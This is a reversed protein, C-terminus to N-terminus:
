LDGTPSCQILFNGLSLLGLCGSQHQETSQTHATLPWWNLGWDPCMGRNHALGGTPAVHYDVVCQHKEGEREGERGRERFIFKIKKKFFSLFGLFQINISPSYQLRGLPSLQWLNNIGWIQGLKPFKQEKNSPFVPGSLPTLRVCLLAKYSPLAGEAITQPKCQTSNPSGVRSGEILLSSRFSAFPGEM